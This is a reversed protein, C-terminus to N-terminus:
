GMTASFLFLRWFRQKGLSLVPPLGQGGLRQERGREHERLGSPAHHAGQEEARGHRRRWGRVRQARRPRPGYADVRRPAERAAQRPGKRLARELLLGDPCGSHPQTRLRGRVPVPHAQRGGGPPHHLHALALRPPLQLGTRLHPKVSNAKPNGTVPPLPPNAIRVAFASLQGTGGEEYIALIQPIKSGVGLVGAGAQLYGLTKLDVVAPTVLAAAAAALVAVFAAALPSREAYSLVLAGIAANQALILASEGYTSFPFGQRFGYALTALIAASELAVASFSVGAGSRASTIKLIQPVKVISSAAVIGIGLAKSVALKLCAPDSALDVDLVLTRYCARGILSEGFARLPAPLNHTIPQAVARLADM